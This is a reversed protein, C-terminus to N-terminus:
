KDTDTEDEQADFLAEIKKRRDVNIGEIVAKIENGDKWNAKSKLFFIIATTDPPIQKKTIIKHKKIQGDSGQWIEEKEEILTQTKFRSYLAEEADVVLDEFGNKLSATIPPYRNKWDRLTRPQIGIKESIEEDTLGSRKWHRLLALREDTLWGQAKTPKPM